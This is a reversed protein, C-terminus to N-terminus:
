EYRLAVLPDVKTARRAPLYCALLSVAALAVAILVFTLPDTASVQYLQTRILRTGAFAAILGIGIGTVTLLMGQRIVLSLVDGAQAGLAIRIGVERTRRGVMWAMVGYLGVSALLLALLGFLVVLTSALRMPALVNGVSIAMSDIENTPLSPDLSLLERRVSPILVEARGRTRVVFNTYNDYERRLRDFHPLATETLDHHKVDAAVGIIKMPPMGPGKRVTQGIADAGPFLRAALAENIIVVEAGAKDANTFGRGKIIRIGMTEHYAPGVTDADFAMQAMSNQSGDVILSSMYRGGSLPPVLGDSVSEVGPLSRLRQEVQQQFSRAQAEDYKNGDLEVPVVLLNETQYGPDIALLNQFSRICLGAAILVVIALALQGVVL